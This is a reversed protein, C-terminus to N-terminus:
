DVEIDVQNDVQVLAGIEIRDIVRLQDLYETLIIDIYGWTLVNDRSWKMCKSNKACGPEVVDQSKSPGM